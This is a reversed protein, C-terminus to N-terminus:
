FLILKIGALTLVLALFYELRRTKWRHSGYYSGVIGGLFALGVLFFTNTNLNVGSIIQGSLGSLSNVWIFLASVGAAEKMKGWRFFLIIPTLIIGGGIGILGSFYGITMGIILAIPIPIKKTKLDEVDKKYLLRLVAFFLIGGLIKKYFWPNSSWYGGIFASPVSSITFYYFLSKNFYGAKYYQYFAIGAVFLNLTLATQKMIDIPFSFFVMLALYGSAGGHGVSSYLFAVLPILLYFLHQQEFM